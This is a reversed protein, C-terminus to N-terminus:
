SYFIMKDKYKEFEQVVHPHHGIILDAGSDIIKHALDKQAQSSKTKYENGWHISIILFKDSNEKRTREVIEIIKEDGCESFTKNFGLFILNDKVIYKESCVMPDGVYDIGAQRLLEQTEKFDEKNTNLTHNNALSLIRFNAALLPEIIKADFSFYMSTLSFKKPNESIPGELNGFVYDNEKLFPTIKEFPYAFGNKEMQAEVKRDLMIDGVFLVNIPKIEEIGQQNNKEPNKIELIQLGNEKLVGVGFVAILLILALLLYKIGPNKLFDM